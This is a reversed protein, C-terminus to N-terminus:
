GSFVSLAVEPHVADWDGVFESPLRDSHPSCPQVESVRRQEREAEEREVRELEEVSDLGRSVAQMMREFWMKKQKRLREVKADLKRREEEAAELESEIKQHQAGIKRLQQVSLGKADCYSLNLRVCDYCRSSDSVSIQCDTFGRSRCSSCAEPMIASSGLIVGLLANRQETKSSRPKFRNKLVRDSPM